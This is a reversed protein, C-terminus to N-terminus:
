KSQKNVKIVDGNRAQPEQSSVSNVSVDSANGNSRTWAELGFKDDNFDTQHQLLLPPNYGQSSLSLSPVLHTTWPLLRNCCKQLDADHVTFIIFTAVM